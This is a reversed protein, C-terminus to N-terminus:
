MRKYHGNYEIPTPHDLYGVFGMLLIFALFLLAVQWPKLEM